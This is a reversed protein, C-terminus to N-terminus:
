SSRLAVMPDVRAAQRAPVLNALMAAVGLVGFAVAFSVADFPGVFLASSLVRAAAMALVAGVAGGIAVLRMGEGLVMRVLAGRQAGLATRIG